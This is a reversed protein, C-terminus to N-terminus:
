YAGSGRLVARLTKWLIQLDLSVSWNDVYRLDLRVSEEWSLDARGSVQWLGTLGPKVRLRRHVADHYSDYEVRLPPRPGVLSMDGRVVNWLQPLEDLSFRRLFRGVRTIRPDAHMKFMLGDRDSKELLALRQSEADNVMSRLKWFKFARGDLGIREQAFFAPGRSTLRVAAAGAAIIPLAVLFMALGLSRDLLTKAMVRGQHQDPSEVHLLSLGAAPRMHLRPGTVEVLGPDVVLDAGTRELAWSLRRLSSASLGSGAVIVVDVENDIVVQPIDSLGGLVSIEGMLDTDSMVLPVCAGVVKYGHYPVTALDGVVDDVASPTGVVLTRALAHGRARDAYLRRRLTYRYLATMLAVVPIAVLVLRRPLGLRFAFSLLGLLCVWILAARGVMGFEDPGQGIRRSDYARVSWLTVCWVGAALLAAGVDVVLRAAGPPTGLSVSTVLFVSFAVLADGLAARTTWPRAWRQRRRSARAVPDFQPHEDGGQPPILPQPVVYPQKSAWSVRMTVTPSRRDAAPSTWSDEDTETGYPEDYTTM